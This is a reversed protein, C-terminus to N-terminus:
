PTRRTRRPPPVVLELCERWQPGFRVPVFDSDTTLLRRLGLREALAVISLGVLGLEVSKFKRDIEATRDLDTVTPPEYRYAGRAIQSLLRHMEARRAGLHHDLEALVLGPVILEAAAEAASMWPEAGRLANLWGGTDLILPGSM